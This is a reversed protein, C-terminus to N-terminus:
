APLLEPRDMLALLSATAQSFDSFPAHAIGRAVCHDILRDRALVFDAKGSVCFDSSGDGVYVIRAHSARAGRMRECKCNGSGSECLASAWPSEMRWRRPAAQVLWNATVPLRDLGHRALVARIVRDLGDSVVQVAIGRRAAAAVFDAFHPDIRVSAIEAELEAASMELLAVQGRMCERSGIEGRLWAQELERWGPRAFRELLRDTVDGVSITGDFDCQVLWQQARAQEREADTM